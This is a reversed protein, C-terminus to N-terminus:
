LVVPHQVHDETHGGPAVATRLVVSKYLFVYQDVCYAMVSPQLSTLLEVVKKQKM